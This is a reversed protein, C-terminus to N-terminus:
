INRLYIAYLLTGCCSVVSVIELEKWLNNHTGIYRKYLQAINIAFCIEPKPLMKKTCSTQVHIKASFTRYM